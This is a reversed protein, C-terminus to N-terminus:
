NLLWYKREHIRFFKDKKIKTRLFKTTRTEDVSRFLDCLRNRVFPMVDCKEGEFIFHLFCSRQEHKLLNNIRQEESHSVKVGVQVFRDTRSLLKKGGPLAAEDHTYSHWSIRPIYDLNKRRTSCSWNWTGLERVCVGRPALPIKWTM